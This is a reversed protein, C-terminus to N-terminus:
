FLSVRIYRGPRAHLDRVLARTLDARIEYFERTGHSAEGILVVSVDDPIADLLRHSASHLGAPIAHERIAHVAAADNRM